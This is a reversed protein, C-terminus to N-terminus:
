IINERNNYAAHWERASTNIRALAPFEIFLRKLDKLRLDNGLLRMVIEILQRDEDEDLTLRIYHLNEVSSLNILKYKEPRHRVYQTVHEREFDQVAYENSETLAEMKIVEVDLGHPFTKEINNAAYDADANRRLQIIQDIIEPDILPNDSTVRVIETAKYMESCQHYRSLVDARPGRFCLVDRAECWDVLENDVADTTTAVIIHDILKCENVRDLVHELVAKGYLPKLVKGPLRTSSMRAQIIALTNM